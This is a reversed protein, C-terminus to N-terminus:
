GCPTRTPRRPWGTTSWAQVGAVRAVVDWGDPPPADVGALPVLAGPGALAAVDAWDDPQLDDPLALFPSVDVPYRLVRGRREAFHAHPGTLASRAPNELPEFRTPTVSTM